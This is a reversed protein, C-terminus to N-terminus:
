HDTHSRSRVAAIEEDATILRENLAIVEAKLAAVAVNQAQREIQLRNVADGKKGLEARQNAHTTKLEDITIELRRTSMAFEARLADKDAQIEAVSHPISDELRRVTLRVARSHVLPIIALAILAAVLFGIGFYMISEIMHAFGLEKAKTVVRITCNSLASVLCFLPSFRAPPLPEHLFKDAKGGCVTM